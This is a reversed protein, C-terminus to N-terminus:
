QAPNVFKESRNGALLKAFAAQAEVLEKELKENKAALEKIFGSQTVIVEHATDLDKPLENATQMDTSYRGRPLTGYTTMALLVCSFYFIKQTM